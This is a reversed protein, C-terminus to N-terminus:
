QLLSHILQRWVPANRAAAAVAQTVFQLATVPSSDAGETDTSSVYMMNRSINPLDHHRSWAPTRSWLEAYTQPCFCDESDQSQRQPSSATTKTLCDTRRLSNHAFKRIKILCSLFKEYALIQASMNTEWHFDPTIRHTVNVENATFM